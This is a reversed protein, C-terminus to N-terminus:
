SRRLEVRYSGAFLDGPVDIGVREYVGVPIGLDALFLAGAERPHLGTKPLALTLTITAMVHVGPADGTTADIGSPVDLAVVPVSQLNMWGVLDAISGRPPGSLSYGVLADVIISPELEEIQASAVVRGGTAEYVRLQEHPVPRLGDPDALLLSTTLGHNALHRAACIGGGGNGGSGALIVAEGRIPSVDFQELVTLALSRGANEMMQVLSPGTESTAVRDIERMQEATVAPVEVGAITTFV